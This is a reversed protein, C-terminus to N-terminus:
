TPPGQIVPANTPPGQTVAANTPLVQITPANGPPIFISFANEIFDAGAYGSAAIGLLVKMDGPDIKLLDKVGIVLGALVGAIFGIMLSLAFYAASFATQQDAQASPLRSVGKLGLTARVGQGLLGMLGCLVLTSLINGSGVTDAASAVTSTVADAMAIRWFIFERLVVGNL